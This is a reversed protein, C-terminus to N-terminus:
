SAFASAIVRLTGEPRRAAFRRLRLETGTGGDADTGKTGAVLCGFRLWVGGAFVFATATGIIAFGFVFVKGIEAETGAMPWIGRERTRRSIASMKGTQSSTLSPRSRGDVGEGEFPLVSQSSSRPGSVAGILASGDKKKGEEEGGRKSCLRAGLTGASLEKLLTNSESSPLRDSDLANKGRGRMSPDTRDSLVGTLFAPM